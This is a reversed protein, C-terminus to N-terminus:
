ERKPKKTENCGLVARIRTAEAIALDAHAETLHKGKQANAEHLFADLHGCAAHINARSLANAAGHLKVILSNAIGSQLGLSQLIAALDNIQEEAGKVHVTFACGAPNGAADGAACSVATDGIAFTSGSAPSSTISALSCNDSAALV